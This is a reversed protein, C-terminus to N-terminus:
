YDGKLQELAHNYIFMIEKGYYIESHDSMSLRKYESETLTEGKNMRDLLKALDLLILAYKFEPHVSLDVRPLEERPDSFKYYSNIDLICRLIWGLDLSPTIFDKLQNTLHMATLCIASTNGDELLTRYGNYVKLEENIDLNM